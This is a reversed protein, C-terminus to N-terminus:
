KLTDKKEKVFYDIISKIPKNTAEVSLQEYPTCPRGCVTLIYLNDVRLVNLVYDNFETGNDTQFILQSGLFSFIKRLENAVQHPTKRPLPHAYLIRSFYDKLVLLFIIMPSFQDFYWLPQLDKQHDILDAQFCGRSRFSFM